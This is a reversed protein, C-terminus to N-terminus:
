PVGRTTLSVVTGVMMTVFPLFRRWRGPLKKRPAPPRKRPLKWAWIRRLWNMRMRKVPVAVPTALPVLAVSAPDVVASSTVVAPVPPVIALRGVRARMRTSRGADASMRPSPPRPASKLLLFGRHKVIRPPELMSNVTPPERKSNRPAGAVPAVGVPRPDFRRPWGARTVARQSPASCKCVPASCQCTRPRPPPCVFDQCGFQLCITGQFPCVFTLRFVHDAIPEIAWPDVAPPNTTHTLGVAPFVCRSNRPDVKACPTPLIQTPPPQFTVGGLPDFPVSLDIIIESTPVGWYAKFTAEDDVPPQCKKPPCVPYFATRSLSDIGTKQCSHPMGAGPLLRCGM